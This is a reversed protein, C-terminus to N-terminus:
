DSSTYANAHAYSNSDTTSNTHQGATSHSDIWTAATPTPTSGAPTPTPTAGGGSGGGSEDAIVKYAIFAAILIAAFKAINEALPNSTKM